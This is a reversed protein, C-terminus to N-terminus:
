ARIRRALSKGGFGFCLSIKEAIRTGEAGRWVLRDKGADYDFISKLGNKGPSAIETIRRLEETKRGYRTWRRQVVILDLACLDAEPIGLSKLRVLAEHASGAHFTACSGKGQGALMTNVLATAEDASRVEGVIIRDPRMRLTDTVLEAMGIGLEGCVTLRVQHPHTLVIEPTEEVIIIRENQPIFTFLTNLTSTKGSGTNGCVIVNADSKMATDLFAMAEASATRNAVLEEPTFPRKNFRRLTACPGSLAVPPATAHLRGLPLHANLRPKQSTIRRGLTRSIKNVIEIIKQENEIQVDTPLWGFKKHYVYVPRNHDVVAIEEICDLGTFFDLVSFGSIESEIQACLEKKRAEDLVASRRRCYENVLESVPRSNKRYANLVADILKAADYSAERLSTLMAKGSPTGCVEYGDGLEIVESVSGCKVKKWGITNKLFRREGEDLELVLAGHKCADICKPKGLCLDCKIAKKGIRLIAKKPCVAACDGCGSCKGDDIGLIGEAAEFVAGRPCSYFCSKEECGCGTIKEIEEIQYKAGKLRPCARACEGCGDCKERDLLLHM